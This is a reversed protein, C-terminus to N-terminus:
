VWEDDDEYSRDGLLHTDESPNTPPESIAESTVESTSDPETQTNNTADLITDSTSEQMEGSVEELVEESTSAAEEAIAEREQIEYIDEAIEETAIEETSPSVPPPMTAEVTENTEHESVVPPTEITDEGVVVTEDNEAKAEVAEAVIETPATEVSPSSVEDSVSTAPASPQKVETSDTDVM